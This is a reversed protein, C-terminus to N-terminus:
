DLLGVRGLLDRSRPDERLRAFSPDVGIHNLRSHRQAYSRELWEFAGATDGLAEFVPAVEPYYIDAEAAEAQLEELIGRAEGTRGTAALVRALNARPRPTPGAHAASREYARAAEELEGRMEHVKGINEHALWFGPDLELAEATHELALDFRGLDLYTAALGNTM